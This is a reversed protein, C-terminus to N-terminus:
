GEEGPERCAAREPASLEPMAPLGGKAKFARLAALYRAHAAYWRSLEWGHAWHGPTVLHGAADIAQDIEGSADVTPVFRLPRHTVNAAHCAVCDCPEDQWGIEAARQYETGESERLQRVDPRAKPLAAIWESPSPFKATSRLLNDAALRVDRFPYRRLAHFYATEQKSEEADEMRRHVLVGRLERFTDLFPGLESDIM